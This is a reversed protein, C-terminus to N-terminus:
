LNEPKLSFRHLMFYLLASARCDWIRPLMNLLQALIQCTQISQTALSQFRPHMDM